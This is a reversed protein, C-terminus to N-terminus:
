RGSPRDRAGHYLAADERPGGGAGKRAEGGHFLAGRAGVRRLQVGDRLLRHGGLLWAVAHDGRDRRPGGHGHELRNGDGPPIKGPPIGPLVGKRGEGRRSNADQRGRFGGYLLVRRALRRGERLIDGPVLHQDAEGRLLLPHAGPRHPSPLRGEEDRPLARDARLGGQGRRLPGAAV